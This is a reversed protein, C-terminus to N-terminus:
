KIMFTLGELVRASIDGPCRARVEDFIYMDGPQAANIIVQAAAEYRAGKNTAEALLQGNRLRSVKYSVMECNGCFLASMVAALGGQAKFEGSGITSARHAAGLLAVPDPFRKVFYKFTVPQLKGGSITIAGEGPTNARVIYHMNGDKNITLGDSVDIRVDAEPVGRVLISVPNDIGCYFVNMKDLGIVCAPEELHYTFAFLIATAWGLLVGPVFARLKLIKSRM